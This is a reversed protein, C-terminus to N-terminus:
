HFLHYHVDCSNLPFLCVYRQRWWSFSEQCLAMQDLWSIAGEYVLPHATKADGKVNRLVIDFSFHFFLNLITQKRQQDRLRYRYDRTHQRFSTQLSNSKLLNVVVLKSLWFTPVIATHWHRKCKTCSFVYIWTYMSLARNVYYLSFVVSILLSYWSISERYWDNRCLVLQLFFFFNYKKFTKFGSIHWIWM